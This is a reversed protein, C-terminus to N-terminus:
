KKPCDCAPAAGGKFIYNILSVADALNVMCDGNADGCYYYDGNPGILLESITNGDYNAVFIRPLLPHLAIKRPGDGVPSGSVVQRSSASVTVLSDGSVIYVFEGNDSVKVDEPIAGVLVSDVINDTQLSVIFVYNSWNGATVWAETGDPTIDIYFADKGPFPIEGIVECTAMSIKVVKQTTFCTAYAFQGDPTIAVDHAGNGINYVTCIETNDPVSFVQMFSSWDNVICVKSGDPTLEVGSPDTGGQISDIVSLSATEIFSTYYGNVTNTVYLYSGDPTIAISIPDYGVSVSNVISHDDLRIKTVIGDGNNACAVYLYLGDPSVVLDAPELAGAPFQFQIASTIGAQLITIVLTLGVLFARSNKM